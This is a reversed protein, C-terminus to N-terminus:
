DIASHKLESKTKVLVACFACRKAGVPIESLCEPCSKTKAETKTGFRSTLHNVPKIVGFFIVAAVIVFSILANLFLGYHISSGHLTLALNAFNPTKGIAGILPM